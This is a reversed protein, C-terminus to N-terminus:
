RPRALRNNDLGWGRRSGGIKLLVSIADSNVIDDGSGLSSTHRYDIEFHDGVPYRLGLIGVPNSWADQRFIITDTDTDAVGKIESGGFDYGVGAYMSTACGQLLAALFIIKRM